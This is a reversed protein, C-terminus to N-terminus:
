NGVTWVDLGADFTLKLPSELSVGEVVVLPTKGLPSVEKDIMNYLIKGMGQDQIMYRDIGYEIISDSEPIRVGATSFTMTYSVDADWVVENTAVVGFQGINQMTQLKIRVQELNGVMIDVQLGIAKDRMGAALIIASSALLGVLTSVLLLEVLTFGRKKQTYRGM